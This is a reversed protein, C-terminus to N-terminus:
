SYASHLTGGVAVHSHCSSTDSNPRSGQSDLTNTASGAGVSAKKVAAQPPIWYAVDKKKNSWANRDEKM